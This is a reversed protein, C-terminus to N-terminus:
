EAFRDLSLPAIDIAPVKGVILDSIVQGMGPGLLIGKRGTGTAVWLGPIDGVPGLIPLGDPAVPRLCATQRSLRADALYPLVGVLSEMIQDRGDTTLSEDFGAEEETTGAWLLGDPKTTAYNGKWSM